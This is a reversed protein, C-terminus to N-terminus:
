SKSRVNARARMLRDNGAAAPPPACVKGWRDQFLRRQDAWSMTENLYQRYRLHDHPEDHATCFHAAAACSGFGRMPYYRQKNGRHDQEVLYVDADSAQYLYCWRGDGKIYTEDAHWRRGAKGRRKARLRATLRQAFRAEWERVAEHTFTFGRTLFM